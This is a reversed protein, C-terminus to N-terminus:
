QGLLVRTPGMSFTMPPAGVVDTYEVIGCVVERPKVKRMSRVDFFRRVSENNTGQGLGAVNFFFPHATWYLWPYEPEASPDPLGAAGAAAFADASIVAIGVTVSCDDGVSPASTPGITYEGIMRLITEGEVFTLAGTASTENATFFDRLGLFAEWHKITRRGGRARAM